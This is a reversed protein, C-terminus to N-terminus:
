TDSGVADEDTRGGIRLGLFQFVNEKASDWEPSDSERFWSQNREDPKQLGELEAQNLRARYERVEEILAQVERNLQERSKVWEKRSRDFASDCIDILRDRQQITWGAAIAKKVFFNVTETHEILEREPRNSEDKAIEEILKVIQAATPVREGGERSLRIVAKSIYRPDNGTLVAVYSRIIQESPERGFAAFLGNVIEVLDVM